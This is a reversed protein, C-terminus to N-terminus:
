RGEWSLKMPSEGNRSCLLFTMWDLNCVLQWHLEVFMPHQFTRVVHWPVLRCSSWLRHLSGDFAVVVVAAAVASMRSHHDM